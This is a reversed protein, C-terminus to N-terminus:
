WFFGFPTGARGITAAIVIACGILAPLKLRWHVM